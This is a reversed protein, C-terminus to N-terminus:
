NVRVVVTKANKPQIIKNENNLHFRIITEGKGSAKFKFVHTKDAGIDDGKNDIVKEDILKIVEEDQIAAEWSYKSAGNEKIEIQLIQGKKLNYESYLDDKASPKDASISQTCIQTILFLGLFITKM